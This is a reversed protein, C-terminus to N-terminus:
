CWGMQVPVWERARGQALMWRAAERAAIPDYPSLGARGQPTSAWTSWLFQYQGAAGSRPNTAGPTHHSEHLSICDLRQEIAANLPPSVPKDVLPPPLPADDDVPGSAAVQLMLVAGLLVAM